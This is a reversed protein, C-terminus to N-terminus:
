RNAARFAIRVLGPPMEYYVPDSVTMPAPPDSVIASLDAHIWSGELRLEHIHDDSGRYIVRPIRDTTMVHARPDGAADPAPAGDSVIASLDAHIWSGQLRLEHVHHDTGRYVIRPIGDLTVYAFPNGAADPAPPGDCCWSWTRSSRAM